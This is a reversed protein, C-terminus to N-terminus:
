DRATPMKDPFRASVLHAKLNSANATKNCLPSCLLARHPLLSFSSSQGALAPTAPRQHRVRVVANCLHVRSQPQIAKGLCLSQPRTVRHHPSIRESSSAATRVQRESPTRQLYRHTTGPVSTTLHSCRPDEPWNEFEGKVFAQDANKYARGLEQLYHTQQESAKWRLCAEADEGGSFAALAIENEPGIQNETSEWVLNIPGDTSFGLGKQGAWFPVDFGM